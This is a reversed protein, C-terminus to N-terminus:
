LFIWIVQAVAGTFQAVPLAVQCFKRVHRLRRHAVPHRVAWVEKKAEGDAFAPSALLAMAVSVAM